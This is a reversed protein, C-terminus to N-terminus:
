AVAMQLTTPGDGELTTRRMDRVESTERYRRARHMIQRNDWM